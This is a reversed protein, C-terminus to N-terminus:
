QKAVALAQDLDARPLTGGKPGVIHWAGYAAALAGAGVLATRRSIKKM